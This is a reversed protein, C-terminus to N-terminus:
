YNRLFLAYQQVNNEEAFIYQKIRLAFTQM